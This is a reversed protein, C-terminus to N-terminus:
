KYVVRTDCMRDHLARKQDDFGVMIYGVYCAIGSVMEAFYRGIARGVSLRRGDAMVVRLGLAMKGPTAAYKAVFFVTYAGGLLIGLVQALAQVGMSALMTAMDPTAAGTGIGVGFMLAGGFYIIMIPIGIILSDIIKAAVRIWFGAYRRPGAATTAFPVFGERLKQVYVPKCAACVTAGGIQVADEAPAAKQCETCIV